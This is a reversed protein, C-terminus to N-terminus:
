SHPNYTKVTDVAAKVNEFKADPPVECGSSLIFGGDKGVIDILKTCYAIVDDPTGLSLISAPIDGMICVHSKLIEKAKFIDTTSDFDCICKGKPLEKLYPLNRTYNTDMHLSCILGADVVAHVIKKIPPFLIREFVDLSWYFASAREMAMAVFPIGSARADDLMNQIIDPVMAELVEKVRMPDRHIDMAFKPLTRALSLTMDPTFGGAGIMVPIGQKKWRLVDADHINLLKKQSADIQELSLGTERPFYEECFGNWGRSLITDYDETTITEKERFQVSFDDPIGETGPEVVSPLVTCQRWSSVPFGPGAHDTVDLGGLEDFTDHQADVVEELASVNGGIGFKAKVGKHVNAYQMLKLTIPVRDPLGLAIATDIRHKRDDFTDTKM